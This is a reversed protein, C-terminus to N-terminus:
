GWNARIEAMLKLGDQYYPEERYHDSYIEEFGDTDAVAKTELIVKFWPLAYTMLVLYKQTSFEELSLGRGVFHKLISPFSSFVIEGFNYDDSSLGAYTFLSRNWICYNPNRELIAYQLYLQNFCSSMFLDAPEELAELDARRLFISSIFTGYISTASVFNSLGHGKHVVRDDGRVNVYIVGCDQHNYVLNLLPLITEEVFFDDDGQLKIFTGNGQNMVKFINLDAGTNSSNRTFSFNEYEEALRSLLAPTRDTSANDSVIIEILENGRVQSLICNLCHELYDARNYTPICISLLPQKRREDLLRRAEGASSVKVWCNLSPVYLSVIEAPVGAVVAYDPVDGTVISGAKVVSGFGVRLPGQIISNAGIWCGEELLVGEKYRSTPSREIEGHDTMTVHSDILVDKRLTLNYEIDISLGMNIQCGDGISIKAASGEEEGFLRNRTQIRYPARIFVDNGISVQEPHTFIGDKQIFTNSGFKIFRSALEVPIYTSM